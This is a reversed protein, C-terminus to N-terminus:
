NIEIEVINEEFTLAYKGKKIEGIEIRKDSSHYSYLMNGDKNTLSINKDKGKDFCIFAGVSDSSKASLELTVGGAKFGVGSLDSSGKFNLASLPFADEFNHNVVDLKDKFLSLTLKFKKQSKNAIEIVKNILHNPVKLFDARKLAQLDKILNSLKFFAHRNTKVYEEFKSAEAEGLKKEVYLAYYEDPYQEERDMIRGM